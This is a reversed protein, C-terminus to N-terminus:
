AVSWIPSKGPEFDTKFNVVRGTGRPQDDRLVTHLKPDEAGFQLVFTDAVEVSEIFTFLNLDVHKRGDWLAVINGEAWLAVFVCGDGMETFMEIKVEPTNEPVISRIASNLSEKITTLSMSTESGETELQFVTQHGLPKQSNWQELSSSQDYADPEFLQSPRYNDFFKFELAGRVSRVESVVEASQEAKTAFDVLHRVFHEDGASTISLKLSSATTNFYVEATYVPEKKFIERRFEDVFVSRWSESHDVTPAQVLIDEALWRKANRSSRFIRFLIRAMTSSAGEDIVIARLKKGRASLSGSLLKWVEKECTEMQALGDAAFEAGPALNLCTALTVVEEIKDQKKLIEASKCAQGSQGCIVGIIFSEDQVLSMSENLVTEVIKDDIPINRIQEVPDLCLNNMHPGISKADSKWKEAGFMGGSVIRYASSSAGVSDSGVAAIVAKRISDQKEFSSWLQIDFACYADQSMSRAVVYGEAFILVISNGAEESLVTSLVILGEQKLASTLSRELSQLDLAATAKEVEVIMLIGPSREQVGLEEEDDKQCSIQRHVSTYNRQYDHANDLSDNSDLLNYVYDVKHDTTPTRLFDVKDSGLMLSQSCVFPVDHYFVHVTHEFIESMEKFYNYENKVFIGDPKVLLSLAEMVDLDRTVPFSMVTESLDVLVMDFSGFYEKPIMLLSKTADGYWWEVKENDWHPQAGYYKFAGRTVKQDLELGVVLELSPYKIIDHLLMSDGGGVFLVRQIKDLFRATYHVAMEHYHPRYSTCIQVIADLEFCTDKMTPDSFFAIKQYPSKIEETVSWTDFKFLDKFKCTEPRYAAWAEVEEQELSDYITSTLACTGEGDSCTTKVGTKSQSALHRAAEKMAISLAQHYQNITDWEYDLVEVDRSRLETEAFFDLRRIQKELFDLTTATLGNWHIIMEGTPKGEENLKEDIDFSIKQDPFLWRQPYLEVFGYDRLIEGTGYWHARADCDTCFNYTSYLEEGAQIKRSATVSVPGGDQVSNSQTNLWRGNRHSVMDYIPILLEDWCRQVVMMAANEAFPDTSGRCLNHWGSTLWDLAEFPPLTQKGSLDQGLMELLLSKGAVSWASPLQGYPQERLYNTFPAYDSEEGLDFERLLSRVTGCNMASSPWQISSRPVRSEFDGDDYAVDFTDDEPYFAAVTAPHWEKNVFFGEIKDGVKYDNIADLLCSRPVEFLLEKDSIDENAFVGYPSTPDNADFRRLEIKSHFFGGKSRIWDVLAKGHDITVSSAGNESACVIPLHLLLLWSIPKFLPKM